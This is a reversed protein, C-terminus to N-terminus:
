KVKEMEGWNEGVSIEVKLPISIKDVNEMTKKMSAIVQDQYEKKVELVLEDHVQLILKIPWAGVQSSQTVFDSHSIYRYIEIMAMKVIDAATGQIPMNVAMREAARRLQFNKSKLDPLFRKRGFLTQAYGNKYALQKLVDIYATIQPFDARYKEIFEKAEQRSVGAGEAFGNIGMGYIIGFNIAKALSRMSPTVEEITIKNVEAATLSHIDKGELFAKKMKVDNALSAIIRLEVQSYDGSIFVCGKDAVFAKRIENGLETKIPINQLNPNSSSIRGTVTGLPNFQAHIRGTDSHIMKILSDTYTSQLKSLERYQLIFDIIPNKGKLKFLEKANTSIIASKPTKRLGKPSLNLKQFLIKSLQQSSNINFQERALGYIEKELNKIRENLKKSLKQLHSVDVKIGAKEMHSIVTILDNELDRVHQPFVGERYVKEVEQRMIGYRDNITPLEISRAQVPRDPHVAYLGNLRDILSYFELEKFLAVIEQKNFDKIYRLQEIDLELPVDCRITALERSFFAQDKFQILNGIIKKSIKIGDVEIKSGKSGPYNIPEKANVLLSKELVKYLTDIDHFHKVLEIATKEGIGPVGPINDSADGKLGKFDIVQDPRLSYKQWIMAEDYIITDSVGRKLTYIKTIPNVLQLTDLDGTVIIIEFNSKKDKKGKDAILKVITGIVDDAEFGEKEFYPISFKGLLQKVIPIQDYLEGDAKKRHAKYDSFAQHRFTKAELDFAALIYDPKLEKIAKLLVAAFGYVANVIQGNKTALPPLAHYSRHILAHSDIIIFKKTNNM